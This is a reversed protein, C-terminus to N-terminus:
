TMLWTMLLFSPQIITFTTIGFVETKILEELYTRKGNLFMLIFADDQGKTIVKQQFEKALRLTEFKGIMFRTVGDDLM